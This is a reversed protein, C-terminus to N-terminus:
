KAQSEAIPTTVAPQGKHVVLVRRRREPSEGYADKLDQPRWELGDSVAIVVGKQFRLTISGYVEQQCLDDIYAHLEKEAPQGM